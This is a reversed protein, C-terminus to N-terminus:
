GYFQPRKSVHKPLPLPKFPKDEVQSKIEGVLEELRMRSIKKARRDRVPLAESEIEKQGVVIIYPIWEM